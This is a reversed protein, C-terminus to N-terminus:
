KRWESPEERWQQLSQVQDETLYGENVAIPLMAEYDSLTVLDIQAKEFNQDALPFGYTFIAAMGLVEFEANILDQSAKLSSGGTSILDEIVV